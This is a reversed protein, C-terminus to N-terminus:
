HNELWYLWASWLRMWSNYFLCVRVWSVPRPRSRRWMKRPKTLQPLLCKRYLKKITRIVTKKPFSHIGRFLLACCLLWVLPFVVFFLLLLGWPIRILCFSLLLSVIGRFRLLFSSQRRHEATPSVITSNRIPPCWTHWKGDLFILVQNSRKLTTSAVIEYVNWISLAHPLCLYSASNSLIYARGSYM